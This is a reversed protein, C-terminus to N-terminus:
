ANENKKFRRGKWLLYIAPYIILELIASTVVGGVMPTAIRKMVDSGAGHSFMIPILGALIVSVTMIKPRIRKVAGHMIAEKLDALNRMKGEKKWQEYALELYLLMVVGTEADLGALAILGVVVAISLNYNLFYLLWFAGVLSFPVALFVIITKTVSKTNLYLLVFIILVTLPIVLKLRERTKVLYEYEGSWELRYGDPIKLSAVRKKADDVYGGVDRGTFDIFVYAALLGEESKIGTPGRVIKIDALQGLPVQLTNMSASQLNGMASQQDSIASRQSNDMVPVLVRKLKEIDNRLERAYRVNVPYRERGEITTTLNMGGVASEIIQQVDDVTLGYRAAEERKINFDLFYGTTVREAYVSRTGPIDKLHHEIALGIREIENIDPGMVKIGVPTRIGTALMDIRAKIPMTFSNAVGPISLVDNLENKLREVTMGERWESKPLDKKLGIKYLLKDFWSPRTDPKLNIITEFMELPAPDTATEARGAKGFVQAVEPVQKILKDQLQLLNSVESISAAPVTVPMYFLTGEYLPPMFESGIKIFPYATLAMIIVALVIVTKKFRLALRAFPEYLRHLIISVPHKDEPYITFMYKLIPLRSLVPIKGHIFFTMLVPTITVALFSAFLMSFTKTYALPKFLRGAQAQLTFVPLFGVTIVLLSFFLSPGVEKAAEIIIDTRSVASHQGSVAEELKKHANEVMIISADVMAGIAIAIGSLSMINSTVNLYYMCVFSIIIAIPLTLIVVLASPLHFLFVICVASVAISLKIIEEKLTDISRHILDTRDYTTVIKMGKPLSPAIDTKIREKVRELVNLVNEGFRVVVIGGAVEGKGDIDALGRRIEPGLQVNAVDKLFVPTGAGNTGVAINELDKLNKIYGRGRVMYEIGSFELVRGEVDKNSKKVAEMVKMLPLNYALLRNPDITIQYQKVFGGISAVQSVGPVSEIALKVNYDQISRLEALNYQGTEDVIAYSFGWGLSTADPGLVPNVDAPIKAKVAQLYELVRSRAWYIDTGEEFIVYIFSSGLFSFGRVVQVKPAALLTSSIPYTIQDEVLDPSRGAWETFIIVQTDSLDPIADLPTNKLAWYGWASLFFVLLFIIFKNRASYEIIKSIM